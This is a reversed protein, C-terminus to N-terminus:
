SWSYAVKEFEMDQIPTDKVSIFVKQGQFWISAKRIEFYKALLRDKIKVKLYLIDNKESGEGKVKIKLCHDEYNCPKTIKDIHGGVM